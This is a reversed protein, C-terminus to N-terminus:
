VWGIAAKSKSKFDPDAIVDCIDDVAQLLQQKLARPVFIPTEGIRFTPGERYATNVTHLFAAYKEQSFAANYAQRISPIM